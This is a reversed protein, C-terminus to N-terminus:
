LYRDNDSKNMYLCVCVGTHATPRICDTLMQERLCIKLTKNNKLKIILRTYEYIEKRELFRALFRTLCKKIIIIDEHM